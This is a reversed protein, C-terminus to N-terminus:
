VRAEHAEFDGPAIFRVDNTAVLPLSRRAALQVTQANIAAEGDRGLRSIELYYRDGFLDLWRDVALAAEDDRGNGFARGVDGYMGGSLAVLGSTTERTLWSRDVLPQGRTQGELWARTLLRTVNRYGPEDQCFLTFRSATAREGAERLWLDVGIIPKIGNALAERYFKVLAFLNHEDSLGVAPMGLAVVAKMLEPVRVVSDVLSFETHLRLHVFATM